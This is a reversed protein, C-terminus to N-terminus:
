YDVYVRAAQDRTLSEVHGDLFAFNRKANHIFAGYDGSQSAWFYATCYGPNCPQRAQVLQLTYLPALRDSGACAYAMTRELQRQERLYAQEPAGPPKPINWTYNLVFQPTDDRKIAFWFAGYTVWGSNVHNVDFGGQPATVYPSPQGTRNWPWGPCFLVDYGGGPFYPRLQRWFGFAEDYPRGSEDMGWCTPLRDNWDSAFQTTALMTQRLNSLCAAAKAQQRAKSLAPLLMAALIAIIAVVVLLEILTFGRNISCARM